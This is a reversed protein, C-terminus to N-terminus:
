HSLPLPLMRRRLTLAFVVTCDAELRDVGCRLNLEYASVTKVALACYTSQQSVKTDSIRRRRVLLLECLENGLLQM